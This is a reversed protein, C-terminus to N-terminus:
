FLFTQDLYSFSDTSSQKPIHTLHYLRSYLPNTKSQKEIYYKLESITKKGVLIMHTGITQLTNM